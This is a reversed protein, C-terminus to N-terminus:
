EAPETSSQTSVPLFPYLDLPCLGFPPTCSGSQVQSAIYDIRKSINFFGFVFHTAKEDSIGSPYFALQWTM